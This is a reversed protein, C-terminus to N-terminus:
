VITVDVVYEGRIIESDTDPATQNYHFSVENVREWMTSNYVENNTDTDRIIVRSLATGVYDYLSDPSAEDPLWLVLNRVKVVNDETDDVASIDVNFSKIPIVLEDNLVAQLTM